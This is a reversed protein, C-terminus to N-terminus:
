EAPAAAVAAAEADEAAHEEASYEASAGAGTNELGATVPEDAPPPPLPPALQAAPKPNVPWASAAPLPLLPVRGAGAPLRDQLQQLPLAVDAPMPALFTTGRPPLRRTGDAGEDSCEAVWDAPTYPAVLARFLPLPIYESGGAGPLVLARGGYVIRV